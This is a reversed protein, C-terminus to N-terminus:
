QIRNLAPGSVPNPHLRGQATMAALAILCEGVRGAFVRNYM